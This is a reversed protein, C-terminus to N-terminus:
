REGKFKGERPDRKIKLNMQLQSYYISFTKMFDM